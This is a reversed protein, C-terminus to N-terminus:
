SNLKDFEYPTMFGFSSHLRKKNYYIALYNLIKLRAEKKTKFMRNPLVERKFTKFFSEMLANDYPNGKNSFSQIINHNKLTSIYDHSTYQSGQDTHVILGLKPKENHIAEMLSDIVLPNRMNSDLKYGVIKRTYLDLFVSLYLNGECTQIYTIDGFWVRNKKSSNFEQNILNRTELIAKNKQYKIKYRYGKPYLGMQRILRTIRNKSIILGKNQLCFKIRRAGYRGKHENFIELILDKLTENELERASPKRKM